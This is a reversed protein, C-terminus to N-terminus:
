AHLFPNITVILDPVNDDDDDSDCVDGVTDSDNDEQGANPVYQCNDQFSIVFNASSHVSLSGNRVAGQLAAICSTLDESQM